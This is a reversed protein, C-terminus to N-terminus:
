QRRRLVSRRIVHGDSKNVVLLVVANSQGVRHALAIARAMQTREDNFPGLLLDGIHCQVYFRSSPLAPLRRLATAPTTRAGQVMGGRQRKEGAWRCAGMVVLEELRRCYSDGADLVKFHETVDRRSILGGYKPDDQKNMVFEYVRMRLSQILGSAVIRAYAERSTRSLSM